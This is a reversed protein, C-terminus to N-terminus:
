PRAPDRRFVTTANRAFPPLVVTDRWDRAFEPLTEFREMAEAFGPMDEHLTRILGDGAQRTEVDCCILDFAVLDRKYVVIAVVDDLAFADTSNGDRVALGTATQEIIARGTRSM